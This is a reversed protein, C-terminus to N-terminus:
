FDALVLGVPGGGGSDRAFRPLFTMPTVAIFKTIDKIM